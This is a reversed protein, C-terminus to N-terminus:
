AAIEGERLVRYPFRKRSRHGRIQRTNQDVVPAYEIAHDLVDTISEPVRIAYGSKLYWGKGNACVWLGNPPINDNDELVIRLFKPMGVPQAKVVAVGNSLQAKLSANEERTTRLEDHMWRLEAMIDGLSPEASKAEVPPATTSEQSTAGSMEAFAADFASPPQATLNSGTEEDPDKIPTTAKAM